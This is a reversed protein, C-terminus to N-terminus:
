EEVLSTQMLKRLKGEPLALDAPDFRKHIDYAFTPWDTILNSPELYSFWKQAVEDMHFSTMLVKQNKPIKLIPIIKECHITGKSVKTMPGLCSFSLLMVERKAMKWSNKLM